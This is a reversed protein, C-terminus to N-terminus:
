SKKMKRRYKRINIMLDPNVLRSIDEQGYVDIHTGMSSAYIPYDIESLGRSDRWLALNSQSGFIAIQQDVQHNYGTKLIRDPIDGMSRLFKPLTVFHLKAEVGALSEKNLEMFCSEVRFM